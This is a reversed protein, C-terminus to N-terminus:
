RGDAEGSELEALHRAFREDAVPIMERYWGQQRGAKDGAVLFIAERPPDFAFLLRIESSGSSPLRLEEPTTHLSSPEVADHSATWGIAATDGRGTRGADRM